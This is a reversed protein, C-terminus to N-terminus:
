RRSNSYPTTAGAASPAGGIFDLAERMAERASALAYLALFGHPAANGSPDAFFVTRHPIGADALRLKRSVDCL